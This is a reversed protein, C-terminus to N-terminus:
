RAGAAPRILSRCGSRAARGAPRRSGRGAAPASRASGRWPGRASRQLQGVPALVGPDARHQDLRRRAPREAGAAVDDRDGLQHPRAADRRRHREEVVLVAQVPADVGIGLGIDGQEVADGHAAPDPDRHMAVEAIAVSRVRNAMGSVPMPKKGSTPPVQNRGRQGPSTPMYRPRVPAVASRHRSRRRRPPSAHRAPRVPQRARPAPQDCARAAPSGCAAMASHRASSVSSPTSSCRGARAAVPSRDRAEAARCKASIMSRSAASGPPKPASCSALQGRLRREGQREGEGLQPAPAPREISSANRRSYRITCRTSDAGHNRRPRGRAASRCPDAVASAAHPDRRPAPRRPRPRCPAAAPPRDPAEIPVADSGAPSLLALHRRDSKMPSPWIPRGM